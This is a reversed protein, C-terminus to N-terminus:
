FMKASPLNEAHLLAINRTTSSRRDCRSSERHGHHAGEDVRYRWRGRESRNGVCLLILWRSLRRRSTTVFLGDIRWAARALYASDRSRNHLNDLRVNSEVSDLGGAVRQLTDPHIGLPVLAFIGLM